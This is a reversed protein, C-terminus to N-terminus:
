CYIFLDLRLSEYRQEIMDALCFVLHVINGNDNQSRSINLNIPREEVGLLFIMVPILLFKEIRIFRSSQNCNLLTPMEASKAKERM